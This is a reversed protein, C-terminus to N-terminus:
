DARKYSNLMARQSDNLEYAEGKTEGRREKLSWKLITAYHSSYKKNKQAIYLSLEDIWHSLRSGLQETLKQYEKDSLRVNELEGYLCTPHEIIPDETLSPDKKRKQKKPPFSNQIEIENTPLEETNINVNNVNNDNNITDKQPEEATKKRDKQPEKATDKETQINQYLEYNAIKIATKRHDKKTILIEDDILLKLFARVKTKSWGWRDMLKLESTIVEGREVEILHNGLCIKQKKHNALLLLDIFAQAKSFPKDQWLYHNIIKRHLSIWGESM